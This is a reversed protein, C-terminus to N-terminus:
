GVLQDYCAHSHMFGSTYKRMLGVVFRRWLGYLLATTQHCMGPLAVAPHLLASRVSSISSLISVSYRLHKVKRKGM